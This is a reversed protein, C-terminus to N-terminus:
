FKVSSFSGCLRNRQVKSTSKQLCRFPSTTSRDFLSRFFDVRVCWSCLVCRQSRTPINAYISFFSAWLFVIFCLFLPSGLNKPSRLYGRFLIQNFALSKWYSNMLPIYYVGIGGVGLGELGWAGWMGLDGTRRFLGWFDFGWYLWYLLKCIVSSAPHQFFVKHWLHYFSPFKTEKPFLLHSIPKTKKGLLCRIDTQIIFRKSFIM